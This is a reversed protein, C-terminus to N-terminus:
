KRVMNGSWLVFLGLVIEDLLPLPDPIVLDLILLALFFIFLVWEQRKTKKM